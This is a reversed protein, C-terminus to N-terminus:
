FSHRRRTIIFPQQKDGDMWEWGDPIQQQQQQQQQKKLARSQQIVTSYSRDNSKSVAMSTSPPLQHHPQRQHHNSNRKRASPSSTFPTSRKIPTRRVPYYTPSKKICLATNIPAPRRSREMRHNYEKELIGNGNTGNRGINTDSDNNSTPQYSGPLSLRRPRVIDASFSPCSSHLQQTLFRYPSPVGSWTVVINALAFCITWAVIGSFSSSANVSSSSSSSWKWTTTQTNGPSSILTDFVTTILAHPIHLLPLFLLTLRSTSTSSIFSNLRPMHHSHDAITATLSATEDDEDYNQQQQALDRSLSEVMAMSSDLRRFSEMLPDDYRPLIYQTTQASSPEFQNTDYDDRTHRTEDFMDNGSHYIPEFLSASPSEQLMETPSIDIIDDDHNNNSNKDYTQQHNLFYNSQQEVSSATIPSEATTPVPSFLSVSSTSSSLSSQRDHTRQYQSSRTPRPLRSLSLISKPRSSPTNSNLLTSSRLLASHPRPRSSTRPNSSSFSKASNNQVAENAEQLLTSLIGSIRDLAQDEHEDGVGDPQLEVSADPRTITHRRRRYNPPPSTNTLPSQVVPMSFSPVPEPKPFESEPPPTNM